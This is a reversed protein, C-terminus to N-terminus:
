RNKIYAEIILHKLLRQLSRFGLAKKLTHLALLEENSLSIAVMNRATDAKKKGTALFRLKAQVIYNALLEQKQTMHEADFEGHEAYYEAEAHILDHCTACIDVKKGDEPGNYEVPIVHHGEVPQLLESRDEPCCYCYGKRRAM